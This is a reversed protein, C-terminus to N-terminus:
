ASVSDASAASSAPTLVTNSQLYTNLRSAATILDKEDIANYRKWMKESKHGVIKMATATDVGARRLNTAACHRLDHFRFDSVGALKKATNFGRKISKIPQGEYLFVHNTHLRRVKALDALAARVAPTIPVQRPEKTKTDIARLAIFGRQLDVRDWTLQVIEGFRQGLHYALLLIPKLHSAAADYLANWESDSLVRDRENHAEPLPVKCAPNTLLLGRRVAVNLCHKLAIHDNNVTLLTPVKGDEKRRQARYAEVQGPTIEQLLTSGFFPILQQRVIRQRDRYSRLRKVEELELYRLGWDKFLVPQAQSSPILGKMLETKILAEQQRAVTRNVSGVKWRKLKAGVVGRALTLVKGDDLVPFEVYYSDKRKTLGM